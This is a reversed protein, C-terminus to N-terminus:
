TICCIMIRLSWPMFLVLNSMILELWIIAGFRFTYLLTKFKDRFEM